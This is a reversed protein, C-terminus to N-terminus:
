GHLQSYVAAYRRVGEGLDFWRARGSRWCEMDPRLASLQDLGNAYGAADLAAISV